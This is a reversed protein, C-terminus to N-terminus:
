ATLPNLGRSIRSENFLRVFLPHLPEPLHTLGALFSLEETGSSDLELTRVWAELHEVPAPRAGSLILALHAAAADAGQKPHAAKAFARQSRFKASIRPKMFFAIRTEM